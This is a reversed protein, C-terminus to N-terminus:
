TDDRGGHAGALAADREATLQAITADRFSIAAFLNDIALGLARADHDSIGTPFPFVAKLERLAKGSLAERPWPEASLPQPEPPHTM